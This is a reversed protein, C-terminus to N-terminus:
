WIRQGLVDKRETPSCGASGPVFHGQAGLDGDGCQALGVLQPARVRRHRSRRSGWRWTTCPSADGHPDLDTMEVRPAERGDCRGHQDDSHQDDSHRNDSHQHQPHRHQRRHRHRHRHRLRHRHRHPRARHSTQQQSSKRPHRAICRHRYSSTHVSPDETWSREEGRSTASASSYSSGSTAM